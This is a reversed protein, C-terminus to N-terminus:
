NGTKLYSIENKQISDKDQMKKMNEELQLVKASMDENQLDLYNIKSDSEDLRIKHAKILADRESVQNKLLSCECKTIKPKHEKEPSKPWENFLKTLLITMIIKLTFLIKDYTISAFINVKFIEMKKRKYFPVM